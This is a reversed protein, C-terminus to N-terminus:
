QLLTLVENWGEWASAAEAARLVAAPSRRAPNKLLPALLRTAEWPRGQELARSAARVTSDNTVVPSLAPRISPEPQASVANGCGCLMSVAVIVIRSKCLAHRLAHPMRVSVVSPHIPQQELTM